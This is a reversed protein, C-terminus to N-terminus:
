CLLVVQIDCPLQGTILVFTQDSLALQVGKDETHRHRRIVTTKHSIKAKKHCNDGSHRKRRVITKQTVITKKHCDDETGDTDSAAVRLTLAQLGGNM